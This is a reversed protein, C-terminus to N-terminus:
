TLEVRTDTRHRATAAAEEGVQAVLHHHLTLPAIGFELLSVQPLGTYMRGIRHLDSARLAKLMLYSKAPDWGTWAPSPAATIDNLLPGSPPLTEDDVPEIVYSCQGPVLSYAQAVQQSLVAPSEQGARFVRGLLVDVLDDYPLATGTGPPSALRAREGATLESYVEFARPREIGLRMFLDGLLHLLLTQTDANRAASSTVQAARTTVTDRRYELAATFGYHVDGGLFVVPGYAAARRLLEQHNPTTASWSEFDAFEAGDPLLSAAPQVVHEVIHTGLAPSPTVILTLPTAPGAPGPLVFELAARSVRAAPHDVRHFERVTREDLAIVRVPWGDQPGWAVDYRVTDTAAPDRLVSPPAAPPGAPVGLTRRLDPTDPSAGTWAVATLLSAEPSAATAFRDPVNGWHQCLAYALLGNTVVRSGGPDAYVADAWPHDLNWDDTVEHDDLVMLSPVTALVKCVAPLGARFVATRDRQRTWATEDLGSAPDLDTAPVVESWAPLAAPWLAVSWYLLYAALFEGFLWLHDAAASSTLRHAESPGQRGGIRPLPAFPEADSVGVLDAAIRRIRPVLPAPVDDAYIQDGSLVLLHPRPQPVDAAIREGIVAAAGALGDRGNGHAKRCSTHLVVLDAVTAPPAPFAPLATGIACDSWMPDPWGPSSLRYEYLGGAAFAGGPATGTVVALWLNVGVRTPTASGAAFETGPQGALRLHLTVTDPRTLALWVSAHTRTVRRLIPGAAIGPLTGSTLPTDDM